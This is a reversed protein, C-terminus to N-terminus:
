SPQALAAMVLRMLDAPLAAEGFAGAASLAVAAAMREM